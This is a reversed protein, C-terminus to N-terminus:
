FGVPDGGKNKWRLVVEPNQKGFTVCHVIGESDVVRHTSGGERYYLAVPNIIRYARGDPQVYERWEEITLDKPGVLGEVPKLAALPSSKEM